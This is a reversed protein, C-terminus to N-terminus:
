GMKMLAAGGAPLKVISASAAELAFQKVVQTVGPCTKFGYDDLVVWGGRRLRPYFFKLSELTPHALDVDIHVFCFEEKDVDAFREPIWGKKYEVFDFMSLRNRVNEESCALDGARWHTGDVEAPKSLGEFSDFIYHRAQMRNYKHADCILFSGLGRFVGCEATNGGIERVCHAAAERLFYRRQVNLGDAEGFSEITRWISAEEFWDLDPWYLPYRGSYMRMFVFRALIFAEESGRQTLARLLKRLKRM